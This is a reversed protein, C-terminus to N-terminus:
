YPFLNIKQRIIYLIKNILKANLLIKNTNVIILIYEAHFLKKSAKNLISALMTIIILRYTKKESIMSSKVFWIKAKNIKVTAALSVTIPRNNNIM